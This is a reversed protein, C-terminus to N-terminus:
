IACLAALAAQVIYEGAEVEKKHVIRFSSYECTLCYVAASVGGMRNSSYNCTSCYVATSVSGIRMSSYDCNLFQVAALVTETSEKRHSSASTSSSHSSPLSGRLTQRPLAHCSRSSSAM